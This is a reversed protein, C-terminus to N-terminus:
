DPGLTRLAFENIEPVSLDQAKKQKSGPNDGVVLYNTKKSLSTTVRGGNKEIFATAQSRSWNKLTGTIM